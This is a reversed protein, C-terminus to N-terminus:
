KASWSGWWGTGFEYSSGGTTNVPVTFTDGMVNSVTHVQGAASNVGTEGVVGVIAIKDGDSLGHGPSTIVANTAASVNTISGRVKLGDVSIRNSDSWSPPLNVVKTVTLPATTLAIDNGTGIGNVRVEYVSDTSPNTSWPPSVTATGTSPSYATITRWQRPTTFGAGGTIIVTMGNLEFEGFVQSAALQITNNSGGRATGNTHIPHLDVFTGANICKAVIVSNNLPHEV